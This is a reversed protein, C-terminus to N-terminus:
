ISTCFLKGPLQRVQRKIELMMLISSALPIPLGAEISIDDIHKPGNTIAKIIKQEDASLGSLDIQKKPSAPDRRAVPMVLDLEELIDDVTEVLKAGQKILWHPGKTQETGVQGPVAFVERGQDLAQKATIMAGSKYHGEIVVTGLSLGSIIRNRRPFNSKDTPYGLPFESVLAGSREIEQALSRNEAPFIKDVGCGFVAITRGKADLAGKHAETDIGAALGSVVAIGSAALEYALKRATELGSQTAHRTGVIAISKEAGSNLRGKVYLVPPPDYIHKLLEPYEEDDWTLTQINPDTLTKIEAEPDISGRQKLFGQVAKANLGEVALIESDPAEWVAKISGFREWLKKVTVPGIEPIKNIALWYKINKNM